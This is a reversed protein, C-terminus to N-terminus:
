RATAKVCHLPDFNLPSQEDLRRASRADPSGAGRRADDAVHIHGCPVPGAPAPRAAVLIRKFM